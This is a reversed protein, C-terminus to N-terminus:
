NGSVIAVDVTADGGSPTSDTVTVVSGGDGGGNESLDIVDYVLNNWEQATLPDGTAKPEYIHQNLTYSESLTNANGSGQM